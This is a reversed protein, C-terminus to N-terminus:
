CRRVQRFVPSEDGQYEGQSEAVNEQNESLQMGSFACSIFQQIAAGIDQNQFYGLLAQFACRLVTSDIASSQAHPINFQCRILTSVHTLVLDVIRATNFQGAQVLAALDALLKPLVQLLCEYNIEPAAQTIKNALEKVQPDADKVLPAGQAARMSNAMILKIIMTIIPLWKM